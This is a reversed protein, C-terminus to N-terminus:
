IGSWGAIEYGEDDLLHFMPEIWYRRQSALPTDYSLKDTNGERGHGHAEYKM